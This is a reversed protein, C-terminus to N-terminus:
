EVRIIDRHCSQCTQQFSAGDALPEPDCRVVADCYVCKTGDALWFVSGDPLKSASMRNVINVNRLKSINMTNEKISPTATVV